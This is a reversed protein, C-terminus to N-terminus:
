KIQAAVISAVSLIWILGFLTSVIISDLKDRKAQQKHYDSITQM